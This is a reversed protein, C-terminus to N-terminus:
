NGSPAALKRKAVVDSGARDSVQGIRVPYKRGLLLAVPHYSQGDIALKLIPPAEGGSERYANYVKVSHHKPVPVEIYKRKVFYTIRNDM